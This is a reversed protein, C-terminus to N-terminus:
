GEAGVAVEITTSTSERSDYGVSDKLQEETVELAEDTDTYAKFGKEMYALAEDPNAWIGGNQNLKVFVLM